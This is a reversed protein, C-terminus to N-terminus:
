RPQLPSSVPQRTKIMTSVRAIQGGNDLPSGCAVADRKPPSLKTSVHREFIKALATCEETHAAAAMEAGM